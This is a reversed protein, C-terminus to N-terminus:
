KSNIKFNFVNEGKTVTVREPTTSPSEYADPLLNKVGGAVESPKVFPELPKGARDVWAVFTVKYDGAWIGEVGQPHQITFSGDAETLGAGYGHRDPNFIEVDPSFGVKCNALPKGNFSVTGKVSQMPPPGCGVSLPLVTLLLVAGM